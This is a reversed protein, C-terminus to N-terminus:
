RGNGRRGARLPMEGKKLWVASIGLERAVESTRYIREEGNM